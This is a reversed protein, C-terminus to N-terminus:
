QMAPRASIIRIEEDYESHAMVLIRGRRSMGITLFREEDSSHDPDPVDLLRRATAFVAFMAASRRARNSHASVGLNLLPLRNSFSAQLHKQKPPALRSRVSSRM